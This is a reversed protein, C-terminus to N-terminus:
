VLCGDVDDIRAGGPGVTEGGSESGSWFFARFCGVQAEDLRKRSANRMTKANLLLGLLLKQMEDLMGDNRRRGSRALYEGGRERKGRAGAARGMDTGFCLFGMIVCGGRSKEEGRGSGGCMAGDSRTSSAQEEENNAEKRGKGRKRAM